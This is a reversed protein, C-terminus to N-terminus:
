RSLPNFNGPWRASNQTVAKRDAMWYTKWGAVDHHSSPAPIQPALSNPARLMAQAQPSVTTPTPVFHEPALIGDRHDTGAAAIEPAVAAGALAGFSLGSFTRRSVEM